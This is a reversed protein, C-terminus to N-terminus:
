VCVEVAFALAPFWLPASIGDSEILFGMRKFFNDPGGDRFWFQTPRDQRGHAIVLPGIRIELDLVDRAPHFSSTPWYAAFSYSVQGQHVLITHFRSLRGPRDRRVWVYDGRFFSRAMLALTGVALVLAVGSVLM